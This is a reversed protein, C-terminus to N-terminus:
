GDTGTRKITKAIEVVQSKEVPRLTDWISWIGDPDSPDRVILDAPECQLIEAAAELFPQDYRRKGSEIKSLYARDMGIREALQDQTLGRHKRWEKIYHGRKPMPWMTVRGLNGRYGM